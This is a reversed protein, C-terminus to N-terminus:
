PYGDHGSEINARAIAFARQDEIHADLMRIQYPVDLSKDVTSMTGHLFTWLDQEEPTM